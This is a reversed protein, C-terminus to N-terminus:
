NHKLMSVVLNAVVKQMRPCELTEHSNNGEVIQKLKRVFELEEHGDALRVLDDAIRCKDRIAAILSLLAEDMLKRRKM